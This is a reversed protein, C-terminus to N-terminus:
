SYGALDFYSSIWVCERKGGLKQEPVPRKATLFSYPRLLLRSFNAPLALAAPATLRKSILNM